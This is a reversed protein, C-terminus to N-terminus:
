HSDRYSWPGGYETKYSWYFHADAQKYAELQAQAYAQYASQPQAQPLAASWEGIILGHHRKMRRLVRPIVATAYQLHEDFSRAKDKATFLQYQHSDIYVNRYFPWHLTWKWHKPEFRDSFVAWVDDGCISRVIKYAQRYYRKLARKPIEASPENLLSIGLLQKNGKYREALQRVVDLTRDINAQDTHWGVEGQKGSHAKGNQSGPAGHLSILIRVGTAEAWEFAKDLYGVTPEYPAAADGGFVWYGVPIRVAEIGQKKLWVFDKKAIFGDRFRKLKAPQDFSFEDLADTGAFLSPTMWRELVLWGGLNVGRIM